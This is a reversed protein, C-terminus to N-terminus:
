ILNQNIPYQERPAYPCHTTKCIAMENMHLSHSFSMGAEFHRGLMSALMHSDGMEFNSAAVHKTVHCSM